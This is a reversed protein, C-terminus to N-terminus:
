RWGARTEPAWPAFTRLPAAALKRPQLPLRAPAPGLPEFCQRLMYSAQEEEESSEEESDLAALLHAVSEPRARADWERAVRSAGPLGPYEEEYPRPAQEGADPNRRFTSDPHRRFTEFVNPPRYPEVGPPTIYAQREGDLTLRFACLSKLIPRWPTGQLHPEIPEVDTNVARVLQAARQPASYRQPGAGGEPNYRPDQNRAQAQRRALDRAERIEAEHKEYAAKAARTEADDMDDDDMIDAWDGAQLAGPGLVDEMVQLCAESQMSGKAQKPISFDPHRQMVMYPNTKAHAYGPDTNREVLITLLEPNHVNAQNKKNGDFRYYFVWNNDVVRRQADPKFNAFSTADPDNVLYSRAGSAKFGFLEYANTQADWYYLGWTPTSGRQNSHVYPALMFHGSISLYVPGQLDVLGFHYDDPTYRSERGRVSEGNLWEHHMSLRQPARFPQFGLILDQGKELREKVGLEENVKYMYETSFMLLSFRGQRGNENLTKVCDEAVKMARSTAGQFKTQIEQLTKKSHVIAPEEVQEQKQWRAAGQGRWGAAGEGDRRQASPARVSPDRWNPVRPAQKGDSILFELQLVQLEPFNQNATTWCLPKVQSTLAKKEQYDPANADQWLILEPTRGKNAWKIGWVYNRSTSNWCRTVAVDLSKNDNGTCIGNYTPIANDELELKVVLETPEQGPMNFRLTMRMEEPLWGNSDLNPERNDSPFFQLFYRDQGPGEVWKNEPNVIELRNHNEVSFHGPKDEDMVVNQMTKNTAYTFKTKVVKSYGAGSMASIVIGVYTGDHNGKEIEFESKGILVNPMTLKMMKNDEAAFQIVWNYAKETSGLVKIVEQHVYIKLEDNRYLIAENQAFIAKDLELQVDAMPSKPDQNLDPLNSITIKEPINEPQSIFVTIGKRDTDDVETMRFIGYNEEEERQPPIQPPRRPPESIQPPRPPPDTVQSAAADRIQHAARDVRELAQAAAQPDDRAEQVANDMRRTLEALMSMIQDIAQQNVAGPPSPMSVHYQPAPPAPQVVAWDSQPSHGRRHLTPVSSSKMYNVTPPLSPSFMQVGVICGQLNFFYVSQEGASGLNGVRADDTSYYARAFDLLKDIPIVDHDVYSVLNETLDQDLHGLVRLSQVMGDMENGKGHILYPEYYKVQYQPSPIDRFPFPVPTGSGLGPLFPSREAIMSFPRVFTTCPREWPTLQVKFYRPEDQGQTLTLLIEFWGGAPDVSMTRNIFDITKKNELDTHYGYQRRMPFLHFVDVRATGGGFACEVHLQRQKRPNYVVDPDRTHIQQANSRDYRSSLGKSTVRAEPAESMLKQSATDLAEAVTELTESLAVLSKPRYAPKQGATERKRKEVNEQHQLYGQYRRFRKSVQRLMEGAQPAAGDDAQLSTPFDFHQDKDRHEAAGLFTALFDMKWAYHHGYARTQLDLLHKGPTYKMKPKVAYSPQLDEFWGLRQFNRLAACAWFTRCYTLNLLREEVRKLAGKYEESDKAKMEFTPEREDMEKNLRYRASALAKSATNLISHSGARQDSYFTYFNREEGGTSDM